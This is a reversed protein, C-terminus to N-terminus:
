GNKNSPAPRCLTSLWATSIRRRAFALSEEILPSNDLTHDGQDSARTAYAHYITRRLERDHAYQIVPLYCPMKLNLIWRRPQEPDKIDGVRGM